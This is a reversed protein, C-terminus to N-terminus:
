LRRQRAEGLEAGGEDGDARLSGVVTQRKDLFVLQGERDQTVEVLGHDPVVFDLERQSAIELIELDVDELVVRSVLVGIM